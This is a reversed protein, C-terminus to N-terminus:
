RRLLAVEAVPDPEPAVGLDRRDGGVIPFAGFERDFQGLAVATEPM